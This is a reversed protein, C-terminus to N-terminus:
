THRYTYRISSVRALGVWLDHIAPYLPGISLLRDLKGTNNHIIEIEIEIHSAPAPAASFLTDLNGLAWHALRNDRNDTAPDLPLRGTSTFDPM